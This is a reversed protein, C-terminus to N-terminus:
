QPTLGACVTFVCVALVLKLRPWSSEPPLRRFIVRKHGRRGGPKGEGPEEVIDYIVELWYHHAAIAQEAGDDEEEKHEEKDDYGDRSTLPSHALEQAEEHEEEVKDEENDTDHQLVFNDDARDGDSLFHSDCLLFQAHHEYTGHHCVFACM